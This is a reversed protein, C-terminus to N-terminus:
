ASSPVALMQSPLWHVESNIVLAALANTDTDQGVASKQAAMSPSPSAKVWCDPTHLLGVSRPSPEHDDTDHPPGDNQTATPLPKPWPDFTLAEKSPVEQAGLARPPNKSTFETDHGVM